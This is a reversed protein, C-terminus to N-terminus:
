LVSSFINLFPKLTYHAIPHESITNHSHAIRSKVNCLFAIMIELAITASSGHVHVVDYKGKKLKKFLEYYFKSGKKSLREVNINNDECIKVNKENIPNGAFITIEFNENSINNCYNLIVASIGNIELNKTIIAIKVINIINNLLTVFKLYVTCHPRICMGTIFSM